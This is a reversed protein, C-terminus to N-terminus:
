RWTQDVYSVLKWAVDTPVRRMGFLNELLPIARSHYAVLRPMIEGKKFRLEEDFPLSAEPQSCWVGSQPCIAGSQVVTGLRL